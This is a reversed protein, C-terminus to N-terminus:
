IWGRQRYIFWGLTEHFWNAYDQFEAAEPLHIWQSPRPRTQFACPVPIVEIGTTKKFVAEARNMHAASTVLMIRKWGGAKALATVKVAEDHTDACVGLSTVEATTLQWRAIWQKVAEAEVPQDRHAGGGILLRPAHKRRLLEIATTPRDSNDQVNVGIIEQRSPEIGGGLCVIADVQLLTTWRNSIDRWPNELTALLRNGLSVCCSLTMFLWLLLSLKAAKRLQQRWLWLSFALLALWLLSLPQFLEVLNKLFSIIM